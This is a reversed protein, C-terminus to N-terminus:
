QLRAQFLATDLRSGTIGGFVHGVDYNASGLFAGNDLTSQNENLTTSDAGNTSYPDTAPNTFIINTNNVLTFRIAVDREYIADVLNIISAIAAQANAM